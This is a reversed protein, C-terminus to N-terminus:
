ASGRPDPQDLVRMCSEVLAPLSQVVRGTCLPQPFLVVVYKMDERYQCFAGAAPDGPMSHSKFARPAPMEKWRDLLEEDPQDPREKFQM